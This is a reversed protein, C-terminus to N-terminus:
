SIESDANSVEKRKRGGRVGEPSEPLPMWHTINDVHKDGNYDWIVWGDSYRMGMYIGVPNYILVEEDWEPLREGVPIWKNEKPCKVFIIIFMGGILFGVVFALAVAIVTTEPDPM